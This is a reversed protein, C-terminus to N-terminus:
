YNMLRVRYGEQELEAKRQAAQEPTQGSRDTVWHGWMFIEVSMRLSRPHFISGVGM